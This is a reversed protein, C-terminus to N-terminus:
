GGGQPDDVDRSAVGLAQLPAVITEPYFTPTHPGVPNETEDISFYRNGQLRPSYIHLTVLDTGPSQLNAVEHIDGGRSVIISGAEIRRARTKKLREGPRAAFVTETAAGEVVLVGCSSEAHDHIPSRQGSRWCLVLVEYIETCHILNRQYTRENFHAWELLADRDLSLSELGLRIECGPIAGAFRDWRALLSILGPRGASRSSLGQSREFRVHEV